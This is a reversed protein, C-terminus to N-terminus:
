WCLTEWAKLRVWGQVINCLSHDHLRRLDPTIFEVVPVTSLHRWIKKPGTKRERLVAGRCFHWLGRSLPLSIDLFSGGTCVGVARCRRACIWRRTGLGLLQCIM